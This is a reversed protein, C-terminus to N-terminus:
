SMTRLLQSPQIGYGAPYKGAAWPEARVKSDLGVVTHRLILNTCTHIAFLRCVFAAFWGGVWGRVPGTCGERVCRNPESPTNSGAAMGQWRDAKKKRKEEDRGWDRPGWKSLPVPFRTAIECRARPQSAWKAVHWSNPSLFFILAGIAPWTQNSVDAGHGPYLLTLLWAPPRMGTASSEFPQRKVVVLLVLNFLPRPIAKAAPANDTQTQPQITSNSCMQEYVRSSPCKHLKEDGCRDSEPRNPQYRRWLHKTIGSEHYIKSRVETKREANM